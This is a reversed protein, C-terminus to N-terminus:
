YRIICDLTFSTTDPTVYGLRFTRGYIVVNDGSLPEAVGAARLATRRVLVTGLEMWSYGTGEQARMKRFQGVNAVVDVGPANAFQITKPDEEELVGLAEDLASQFDTM